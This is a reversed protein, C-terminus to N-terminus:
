GPGSVTNASSRSGATSSTMARSRKTTTRLQDSAIHTTAEDAVQVGGATHTMRLVQLGMTWGVHDSRERPRHGDARGRLFCASRESPRACLVAELGEPLHFARTWRSADFDSGDQHWQRADALLLGPVRGVLATCITLPLITLYSIPGVDTNNKRFRERAALTVPCTDFGGPCVM